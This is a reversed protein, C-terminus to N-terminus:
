ASITGGHSTACLLSRDLPCYTPIPMRISRGVARFPGSSLMRIVPTCGLPGAASAPTFIPSRMTPTSPRGTDSIQGWPSSSGSCCTMRPGRPSM